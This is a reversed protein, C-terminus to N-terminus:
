DGKLGHRAWLTIVGRWAASDFTDASDGWRGEVEALISWARIADSRDAFKALVRHSESKIRTGDVYTGYATRYERGATRGYRRRLM